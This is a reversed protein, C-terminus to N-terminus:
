AGERRWRDHISRVHETPQGEVAKPWTRRRCVALKEEGAAAIEADTVGARRQADWLLFYLDVWEFLDAPNEQVERTEKELHKLAGIPGVSGFTEVSWAAHDRRLQALAETTEVDGEVAALPHTGEAEWNDVQERDLM